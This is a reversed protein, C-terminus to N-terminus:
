SPEHRLIEGSPLSTAEAERSLVTRSQSAAEPAARLVNVPWVPRTFPTANEGSPLSTAEASLVTRSQSSFNNDGGREGRSLTQASM